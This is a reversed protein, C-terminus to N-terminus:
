LKTQTSLELSAKYINEFLLVINQEPISSFSVRVLNPSLSIIGTNYRQLLLKRLEENNIKENLQLCLFYGSNYPLPQFFQKYKQENETLIQKTKQYREVLIAKKEEKEEEYNEDKFADILLSQTLHSNNSINGRIVGASKDELLQYDEPTLIKGAFTLFGLRLGWGYDEKSIGDAKIVLVNEHIDALLSFLSQKFLEQEYFFGFYADDCIVVIKNGNEADEKIIEVIQEAEIKSLSYGTPNHPFNLLIIKKNNENKTNVLKEKFAVLNFVKKQEDFFPFTEIKAGYANSFILKYNGWFLDPVILRDNENIFLYGAVSLAHTIATTPIPLSFLKDKLSPNKKLLQKKWLERLEKEGFSGSYSFVDEAPLNINKAISDLHLPVGEEDTAIGITANIKKGQAEKGQALIGQKPFSIVKGKESLLENIIPSLGM